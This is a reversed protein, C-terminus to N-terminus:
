LRKKVLILQASTLPCGNTVMTTDRPASVRVGGGMEHNRQPGQCQFQPVGPGGPFTAKKKSFPVGTQHHPHLPGIM